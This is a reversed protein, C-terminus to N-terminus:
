WRGYSMYMYEGLSSDKTHEYGIVRLKLCERDWHVSVVIRSEYTGRTGKSGGVLRLVSEIRM